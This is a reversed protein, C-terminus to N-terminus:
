VTVYVELLAAIALGALSLAAVVVLLWVPIRGVRAQIYGGAYEEMEHASSETAPENSRNTPETM